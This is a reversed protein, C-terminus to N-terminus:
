LTESKPCCGRLMLRILSRGSAIAAKNRIDALWTIRKQVLVSYIGKKTLESNMADIKPKAPISVGHTQCLKRLSDELIGGALVAAAQYYGQELLHESQELLDGFM